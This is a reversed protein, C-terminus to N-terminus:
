RVVYNVIKFQMQDKQEDLKRIKFQMVSQAQLNILMKLMSYNTVKLMSNYHLVVMIWPRNIMKM